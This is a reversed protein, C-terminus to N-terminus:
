GLVTGCDTCIYSVSDGKKVTTIHLHNNPNVPLAVAGSLVDHCEGCYTYEGLGMVRCNGEYGGAYYVPGFHEAVGFSEGCKECVPQSHCDAATGEHVCPEPTPVPTPAPTPVPTPEPTPAPTPVPTPAPTPVPTPAPTPVPTPAPTPEPTPAPTPEPTPEPTPLPTPAPTPEPTPVPTSAPAPTPEAAAVAASAEPSPEAAEPEAGCGKMFFAAGLAALVVLGAIILAAIRFGSTKLKEM